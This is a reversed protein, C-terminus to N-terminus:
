YGVTFCPRIRRQFCRRWANQRRASCRLHLLVCQALLVALNASAQPEALMQGPSISSVADGDIVYLREACRLFNGLHLDEQVLGCADLTGLMHFAPCLVDLAAPSGAPLASLPAWTEAVTQAADFDHQM